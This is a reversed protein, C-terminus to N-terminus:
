SRGLEDGSKQLSVGGPAVPGAPYRTNMAAADLHAGLALAFNRSWLVLVFQLALSLLGIVAGILGGVFSAAMGGSDQGGVSTALGLLSIFPSGLQTLASLGILVLLFIFWNGVLNAAPSVVAAGGELRATAANMFRRLATWILFNLVVVPVSIFLFVFGLVAGLYPAVPALQPDSRFEPDLQGLLAGFSFGLLSLLAYVVLTGWQFFTMWRSLTARLVELREGAAATGLAADRARAIWEKAWGLLYLYLAAYGAYFVALGIFLASGGVGLLARLSPDPEAAGLGLRGWFLGLLVFMLVFLGGFIGTLWQVVTLWTPIQRGTAALTAAPTPSTPSTM